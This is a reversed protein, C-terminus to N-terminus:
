CARRFSRLAVCLKEFGRPKLNEREVISDQVGGDLIYMTLVCWDDQLGRAQLVVHKAVADYATM